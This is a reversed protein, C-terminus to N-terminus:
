RDVIDIDDFPECNPVIVSISKVEVPPAPMKMWQSYRRNTKIRLKQASALPTGEKDTLPFYKVGKEADLSYGCEPNEKKFPSRIDMWQEGLKKTVLAWKATLVGNKRYLKKLECTMGPISSEVTELPEALASPAFLLFFVGLLPIAKYM